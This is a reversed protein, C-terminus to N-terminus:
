LWSGRDRFKVRRTTGMLLMDLCGRVIHKNAKIRSAASIPLNFAASLQLMPLAPLQHPESPACSQFSYSWAQGCCDCGGERTTSFTGGLLQTPVRLGLVSLLMASVLLGSTSSLIWIEM